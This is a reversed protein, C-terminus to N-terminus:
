GALLWVVGCRLYCVGLRLVVVFGVLLVFCCVGVM